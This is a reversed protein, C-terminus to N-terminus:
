RKKNMKRSKRTKRSKIGSRRTKKGGFQWDASKMNTLMKQTSARGCSSPTFLWGFTSCWIGGGKM